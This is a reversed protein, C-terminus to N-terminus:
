VNDTSGVTTETFATLNDPILQSDIFAFLTEKCILGKGSSIITVSLGSFSVTHIPEEKSTM